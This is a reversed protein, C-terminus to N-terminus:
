LIENNREKSEMIRKEELACSVIWSDVRFM